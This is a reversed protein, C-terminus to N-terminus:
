KYMMYKQLLAVLLCIVIVAFFVNKYKPLARNILFRYGALIIAFFLTLVIGMVTNSINPFKGSIIPFYYSSFFTGCWIEMSYKSLFKIVGNTNVFKDIKGNCKAFMIIVISNAIINYGGFHSHNYGKLQVYKHLYYVGVLSIFYIVYTLCDGALQHVYKKEGSKVYICALSIGVFFEMLRIVFSAYVMVNIFPACSLLIISVGICIYISKTNMKKTIYIFFPGLIQCMFLLSFFWAGSNIVHPYHEFGFLMTLQFPLSVIDEFLTTVNKYVFMFFIFIFIYTPYLSLFRKRLYVYLYNEDKFFDKNYNSYCIVFGSLVFFTTMYFTSQSVLSDIEGYRCDFCWYLHYFLVGIASFIRLINFSEIKKM